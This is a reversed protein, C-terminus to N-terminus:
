QSDCIPSTLLSLLTVTVRMTNAQPQARAVPAQTAIAVKTSHLRDKHIQEKGFQVNMGCLNCKNCCKGAHQIPYDVTTSHCRCHCREADGLCCPQEHQQGAPHCSCYCMRTKSQRCYKDHEAKGDAQISLGCRDCQIYRQSWRVSNSDIIKSLVRRNIDPVDATTSKQGKKNYLASLPDLAYLVPFLGSGDLSTKFEGDGTGMERTLNPTLTPYGVQILKMLPLHASCVYMNNQAMVVAFPTSRLTLGSFENSIKDVIDEPIFMSKGDSNRKAQDQDLGRQFMQRGRLISQVNNTVDSIIIPDKLLIGNVGETMLQKLTTSDKYSWIYLNDVSEISTYLKHKIDKSHECRLCKVDREIPPSLMSADGTLDIVNTAVPEEQNSVVHRPPYEGFKFRYVKVVVDHLKRSLRIYRKCYEKEQQDWEPHRAIVTISNLNARYSYLAHLWELMHQEAVVPEPGNKVFLVFIMQSNLNIVGETIDADVYSHMFPGSKNFFDPDYPHDGPPGYKTWCKDIYLATTFDFLITPRKLIADTSVTYDSYASILKRPKTTGHDLISEEAMSEIYNLWRCRFYTKKDDLEKDNLARFMYAEDVCYRIYTVPYVTTLKLLEYINQISRDAGAFEKLYKWFIDKAFTSSHHSVWDLVRSENSAGADVEIHLHLRSALMVNWSNFVPFCHDMCESLHQFADKTLTFLNGKNKANDLSETMDELTRSPKIKEIEDDSFVFDAAVRFSEWGQIVDLNWMQMCIRINYKQTDTYAFPTDEISKFVHSFKTDLWLLSLLAGCEYIRESLVEIMYTFSDRILPLLEQYDEGGEEYGVNELEEYEEVPRQLLKNLEKMNEEFKTEMRAEVKREDAKYEVHRKRPNNSTSTDMDNNNNSTSM